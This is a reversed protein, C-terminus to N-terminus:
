CPLDSSLKLLQKRRGRWLGYLHNPSIVLRNQIKERTVSIFFLMKGCKWNLHALLIAISCVVILMIPISKTLAFSPCLSGTTKTHILVWQICRLCCPFFGLIRVASKVTLLYSVTRVWFPLRFTRRPEQAWKQPLSPLSYNIKGGDWRQQKVLLTM